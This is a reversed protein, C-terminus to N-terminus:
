EAQQRGTHRVFHVRGQRYDGIVNLHKGFLHRFVIRAVGDDFFDDLLSKPGAFDGILQQIKGAGPRTFQRVHIQIAHHFLRQGQDGMGQLSRLDLHDLM